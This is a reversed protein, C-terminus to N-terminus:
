TEGRDLCDWCCNMEPFYAGNEVFSPSTEGDELYEMDQKCEDCKVVRTEPTGTFRDVMLLVGKHIAECKSARKSYLDISRPDHLGM